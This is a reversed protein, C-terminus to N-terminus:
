AESVVGRAKLWQDMLELTRAPHRAWSAHPNGPWDVPLWEMDGGLM